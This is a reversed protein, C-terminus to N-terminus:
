QLYLLHAACGSMDGHVRVTQGTTKANMLLAFVAEENQAMETANPGERNWTMYTGAPCNGAQQDLQFYISEPMHSAEVLTVKATVIWDDALAVGPMALASLPLMMSVIKKM